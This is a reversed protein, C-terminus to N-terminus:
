PFLMKFWTLTHDCGQVPNIRLTFFFFICICLDVSRSTTADSFDYYGISKIFIYIQPSPHIASRLRIISFMIVFNHIEVSRKTLLEMSQGDLGISSWCIHCLFVFITIYFTISKFTIAKISEYYDVSLNVSIYWENTVFYTGLSQNISLQIQM